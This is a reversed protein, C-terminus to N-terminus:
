LLEAHNINCARHHNLVCPHMVSPCFKHIHVKWPVRWLIIWFLKTFSCINGSLKAWFHLPASTFLRKFNAEDSIIFIHSICAYTNTYCTETILNSSIFTSLHFWFGHPLDGVTFWGNQMYLHLSSVNIVDRMGHSDNSLTRYYINNALTFLM